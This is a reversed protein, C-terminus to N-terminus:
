EKTFGDEGDPTITMHCCSPSIMALKLTNNEDDLTSQGSFAFNRGQDLLYKKCVAKGKWPWNRVTLEFSSERGRCNALLINARPTEGLGALLAYGCQPDNTTTRVRQPTDMLDRFAKFAYFSKRPAGYQDFMGFYGISQAGYFNAVDIPSDQMYILMAAVFAPGVAGGIEEYARRMMEPTKGAGHFSWGEAPLYNWENLHSETKDFGYKALMERLTAASEILNLPDCDYLHWSYFDLPAETNRCHELFGETFPAAGGGPASPGGVQLSADHTKIAKAAAEYLRYYEEHTGTWNRPNWPENWIEWYHINHHFGDAWGENYHRIINVCVEAWKDFDAPPHVFYKRRTHHEISEGLRYVIQSGTDLIAQIYDDTIDFCYNAPDQPDADFLPFICHIDVTGHVLLCCDHLRTSSFSLERFRDSLDLAGNRQIPGFNVGNLPRIEGIKEGFDVDLEAFPAPM